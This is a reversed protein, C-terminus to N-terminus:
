RWHGAIWVWGGRWAWHGPIWRAYPVPPYASQFVWQYGNWAWGGPAIAAAPGPPVAGPPAGPPPAGTPAYAGGPAALPASLEADLIEIARKAQHAGLAQRAETASQLLQAHAPGEPTEPNGRDLLRTEARELAEQAEGTRGRKLADRADSLYRRPAADAGVAPTPLRPAISSRTDSPAINSAQGSSQAAAPTAALMGLAMILFTRM